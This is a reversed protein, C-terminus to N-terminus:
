GWGGDTNIQPINYKARLDLWIYAYDLMELYRQMVM